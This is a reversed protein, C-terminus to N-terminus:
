RLTLAELVIIAGSILVTVIGALVLWGPAAGVLLGITGYVAFFLISVLGTSAMWLAAGERLHAARRYREAEARLAESLSHRQTMSAWEAPDATPTPLQWPSDVRSLLFEEWSPADASSPVYGVVISPGFLLRRYPVIAVIQDPSLNWSLDQRPRPAQGLWRVLALTLLVSLGIGVATVPLPDWRATWLLSLMTATPILIILVVLGTFRIMGFGLHIAREIVATNAPAVVETPAPNSAFHLRGSEDLTLEGSGRTLSRSFARLPLSPPTATPEPGLRGLITVFFGIAILAAFAIHFGTQPDIFVVLVSVALVLSIISWGGIVIAGRM